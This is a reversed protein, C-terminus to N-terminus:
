NLYIDVKNLFSLLVFLAFSDIQTQTVRLKLSGKPQAKVSPGLVIRRGSSYSLPHSYCHTLLSIFSVYYCFVPSGVM